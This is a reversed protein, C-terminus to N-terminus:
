FKFFIYWGCYSSDTLIQIESNFPSPFSCMESLIRHVSLSILLQQEKSEAAQMIVDDLEQELKEYVALKDGQEKCKAELEVLQKESSNQLTYYEKNLVKLLFFSQYVTNHWPLKIGKIVLDDCRVRARTSKLKWNQKISITLQKMWFWKCDRWSLSNSASRKKCNLSGATLRWSYNDIGQISMFLCYPTSMFSEWQLSVCM